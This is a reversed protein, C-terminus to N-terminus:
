ASVNISSWKFLASWNLQLPKQSNDIGAFMRCTGYHKALVDAPTYALRVKGSGDEWVLVKMPLDIGIKPQSQMLPTGLKPNGFLIDEAPALKAGVKAAGAAHDIRAFITVGKKKFVGELRYLTEKVGYPSEKVTLGSDALATTTVVFLSLVAILLTRM